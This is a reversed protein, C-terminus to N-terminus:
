SLVYARIIFVAVCHRIAVDKKNDYGVIRVIERILQKPPDSALGIASGSDAPWVLRRDVTRQGFSGGVWLGSVLVLGGIWRGPVLRGNLLKQKAM